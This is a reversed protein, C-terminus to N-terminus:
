RRRDMFKSAVCLILGALALAARFSAAVGDGDYVTTGALDFVVLEIM